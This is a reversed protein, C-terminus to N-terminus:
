YILGAEVPKPQEVLNGGPFTTVTAKAAVIIKSYPSNAITGAPFFATSCWPYTGAYWEGTTALTGLTKSAGTPYVGIVSAYVNALGCGFEGPPPADAYDVFPSITKGLTNNITVVFRDNCGYFTGSTGYYAGKGSITFTATPGLPACAEAARILDPEVSAEEVPAAGCGAVLALTALLASCTSRSRLSRNM